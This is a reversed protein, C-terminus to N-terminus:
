ADGQKLQCNVNVLHWYYSEAHFDTCDHASCSEDVLMTGIHNLLVLPEPRLTNIVYIGSPAFVWSSGNERVLSPKAISIATDSFVSYLLGGFSGVDGGPVSDYFMSPLEVSTSDELGLTDGVEAPSNSDFTSSEVIDKGLSQDSEAARPMATVHLVVRVTKTSALCALSRRVHTRDIASHHGSASFRVVLGARAM